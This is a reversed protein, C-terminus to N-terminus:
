NTHAWSAKWPAQATLASLFDSSTEMLYKSGSKVQLLFFANTHARGMARCGLTSGRVPYFVKLV